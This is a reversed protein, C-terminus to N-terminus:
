KKLSLREVVNKRIGTLPISYDSLQAKKDARDDHYARNNEDNKIM